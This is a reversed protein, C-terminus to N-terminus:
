TALAEEFTCERPSKDARLGLFVPARLKMGGENSEHTWETFKIGAVMQPEVWHVRRLADVPGYFPNKKTQLKRLRDWM